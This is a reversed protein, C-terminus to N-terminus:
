RLLFFLFVAAPSSPHCAASIRARGFIMMCHAIWSRLMNSVFWAGQGWCSNCALTAIIGFGSEPVGMEGRFSRGIEIVEIHYLVQLLTNVALSAHLMSNLLVSGGAVM